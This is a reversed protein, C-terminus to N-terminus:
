RNFGDGRKKKGHPIRNAGPDENSETDGKCRLTLDELVIENLDLSRVHGTPQPQLKGMGKLSTM